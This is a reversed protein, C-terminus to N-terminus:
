LRYQPSQPRWNKLRTYFTFRPPAVDTTAAARVIIVSFQPVKERVRNM